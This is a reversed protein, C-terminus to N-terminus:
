MYRQDHANSPHDATGRTGTGRPAALRVDVAQPGKGQLGHVVTCTVHDGLRLRETTVDILASPLFSVDDRGHAPRIFGCGDDPILTITGNM